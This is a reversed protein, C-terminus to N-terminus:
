LQSMSPHQHTTSVSYVSEGGSLLAGTTPDIKPKVNIEEKDQHDHDENNQSSPLRFFAPNVFSAAM